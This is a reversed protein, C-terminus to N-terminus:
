GRELYKKLLEKSFKNVIIYNGELNTKDLDKTLIDANINELLMIKELNLLSYIYTIEDKLVFKSNIDIEEKKIIKDQICNAYAKLELKEKKEKESMQYYNKDIIAEVLEKITDFQYKEGNEILILNKM